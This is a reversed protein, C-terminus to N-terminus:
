SNGKKTKLMILDDSLKVVVTEFAKIKKETSEVYNVMQADTKELQATAKALRVSNTKLEAEHNALRKELEGIVAKLNTFREEYLDKKAKLMQSQLKANYKLLWVGGTVLASIIGLASGLLSLSEM